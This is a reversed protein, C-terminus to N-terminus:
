QIASDLAHEVAKMIVKSSNTAGSVVDVNVRQEAIITDPISIANGGRENLHEILDIATIRHSAVTVQTKAQVLYANFEGTYQGDPIRTLDVASVTLSDMISNYRVYRYLYVGGFILAIGLLTAIIIIMPKRKSM